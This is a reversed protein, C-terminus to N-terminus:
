PVLIEQMVKSIFSNPIRKPYSPLLRLQNGYKIKQKKDHKEISTQFTRWSRYKKESLHMTKTCFKSECKCQHTCVKETKDRPALLYSITLEESASIKRLTFVLTHGKYTYLFCNPTCSHNLLHIGPKTLDPYISAQDHYYMLYFNEDQNIDFDVTRIVEGIYDGIIVGKSINKKAFLGRSGTKHKTKKVEWFSPPLFVM